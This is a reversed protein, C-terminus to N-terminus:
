AGFEAQMTMKVTECWQTFCFVSYKPIMLHTEWQILYKDSIEVASSGTWVNYGFVSMSFKSSINFAIILLLSFLFLLGYFFMYPFLNKNSFLFHLYLNVMASRLPSKCLPYQSTM